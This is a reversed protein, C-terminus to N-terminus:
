FIRLFKKIIELDDLNVEFMFSSVFEDEQEQSLKRETIFSALDFLRNSKGSYEFDIFEIENVNFLINGTVLDGHCLVVDQKQLVLAQNIIDDENEFKYNFLELSDKYNQYEVNTTDLMHFEEIKKAIASINKQILTEDNLGVVRDIVIGGDHTTFNRSLLKLVIQEQNLFARQFSNMTYTKRVKDESLEVM